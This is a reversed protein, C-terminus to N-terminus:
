TEYYDCLAYSVEPGLYLTGALTMKNYLADFFDDPSVIQTQADIEFWCHYLLSQLQTNMPM